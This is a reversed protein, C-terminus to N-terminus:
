SSASGSGSGSGSPIVLKSFSKALAVKADAYYFLQVKVEGTDGLTYPDVVIDIGGWNGIYCDAFNGFVPTNAAFQNSFDARYGNITANDDLIYGSVGSAKLTSKAAGWSATPLLYGMRGRNANKSNITTEMAVVNAWTLSTGASSAASVIQAIAEKDLCAAAADSLRDILIRNVDVSSQKMLDRTTVMYARCGRPTLTVKSITSKKVSASAGENLFTASIGSASPLDVNGVLGNLVTAGMSAVTLKEKVDEIYRQTTIVLNAGGTSSGASQGHVDRTLAFSPIVFGNQRLGIRSYEEEGIAAFDAEIGEMKGRVAGQIFRLLSFDHGKSAEREMKRRADEQEKREAVEAQRLEIGVADYRDLAEQLDQGNEAANLSAIRAELDAKEKRIEILTRM